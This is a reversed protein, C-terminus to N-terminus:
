RARSKPSRHLLNNAAKKIGPLWIPIPAAKGKMSEIKEIIEIVGEVTKSVAKLDLNYIKELKDYGGFKEPASFPSPHM